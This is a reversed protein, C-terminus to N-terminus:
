VKVMAAIKAVGAPVPASLAEVTKVKPLTYSAKVDAFDPSQCIGLHMTKELQGAVHEPHSGRRAHLAYLRPFEKRKFEWERKEMECIHTWGGMATIVSHLVPDEFRVSRYRGASCFASELDQLALAALAELQPKAYELIEAPKPLAQMTRNELISAVASKFEEDGMQKLVLYYGDMLPGTQQRNYVECLMAFMQAFLQRDLM